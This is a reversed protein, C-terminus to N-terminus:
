TPLAGRTLRVRSWLLDINRKLLFGKMTTAVMGAATRLDRNRMIMIPDAVVVAEFATMSMGFFTWFVRRHAPYLAPFTMVVVSLPVSCGLLTVLLWLFTVHPRSSDGSVGVAPSVSATRKSLSRAKLFMLSYLVTPVIGGFAIMVCVIGIAFSRCLGSCYPQIMCFGFNPQYGYCDIALPISAVGGALTWVAVSLSVCVKTGYVSYSFPFFVSCFRDLSLVFMMMFRVFNLFMKAFGMVYCEAPVLLRYNGLLFSVAFPLCTIFLSDAVVVQLTMAFDRQHLHKFKVVLFLIYANLPVGLCIYLLLLAVHLPPQFRPVFQELELGYEWCDGTTTSNNFNYNSAVFM